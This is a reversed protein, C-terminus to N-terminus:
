ITDAFTKEVRNFVMIGIIFVLVSFVASLSLYFVPIQGTGLFIYRFAEIVSTMPNFMFLKYLKPMHTLVLESSYAIPTAYLWLQLGFSVLMLLDRYKTTVASIIAGLGVSLLSMQLVLLLALPILHYNPSVAGVAIYYLQFGIFIAFQILATILNILTDSVPTVLRPFYVKSFIYANNVFTGSASSLCSSFYNWVVNGCMYFLFKPAGDTPLGAINGFVVTFVITTLLPNIIVWLPGLLTQKYKASFTRKVFLWILDRYAFTEKLNLAFWRKKSSIVTINESRNDSM